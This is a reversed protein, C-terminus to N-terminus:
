GVTLDGNYKAKVLKTFTEVIRPEFQTGSQKRIYDIAEQKSWARRYPRDSTLADWVDIVAFVRAPLPIAEGELGRPYGNGDWHEHHFLPIDLAPQLYGIPALMDYAYDTHRRMIEIETDDLPGPKLLIEDPVGMKGIDHLLTGRRIHERDEDSMGLADALELTMETVRSSHGQTGEDRLELARSWGALTAEYADSIEDEKEVRETVDRSNIAIQKKANDEPVTFVGELYRWIGDVDRFRFELREM